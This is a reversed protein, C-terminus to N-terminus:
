FLIWIYRVPVPSSPTDNGLSHSESPHFSRRHMEVSGMTILMHNVKLGKTITSGVERERGRERSGM